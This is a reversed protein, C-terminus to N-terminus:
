HITFQISPQIGDGIARAHYVGSKLALSIGARIDSRTMSSIKKGQSTFIELGQMDAELSGKLQLRQGKQNMCCRISREQRQRQIPILTPIMDTSTLRYVHGERGVIYVNGALDTGFSTPSEPLKGIETNEVVASNKYDVMQVIRSGNDSYFYTGYFPSAPNGRYVVGGIVCTGASHSYELIPPTIGTQECTTANYCHTGEITSWGMDAGKPVIDVEEWANQGVDGLWFDGTLPDFSWRWPNRVGWAWIEPNFESQAVFPNDSPIAYNKGNEAKDIDIRLIKSFLTNKKRGNKYTDGSGGGDGFGAYLYNHGKEEKPNFGLNGGNHNGAPQKLAILVKPPTGDDKIFSADAIREEILSSDTTPNYSLYYKRNQVFDPHFAFGLLGMENGSAAKVNVMVSKTWTDGSKSVVIVNGKSQELVVFNGPKGPMETFYVPSDFTAKGDFADVFTINKPLAASGATFSFLLGAVWTSCLTQKPIAQKM